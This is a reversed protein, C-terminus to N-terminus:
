LSVVGRFVFMDGLFFGHKLSIEDDLWWFEPAFQWNEPLYYIPFVKPFPVKWFAGQSLSPQSLKWSPIKTTKYFRSCSLVGTVM